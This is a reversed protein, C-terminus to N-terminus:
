GAKEPPMIALNQPESLILDFKVKKVMALTKNMPLSLQSLKGNRISVFHGQYDPDIHLIKIKKMNRRPYAQYVSRSKTLFKRTYPKM